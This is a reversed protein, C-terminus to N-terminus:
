DTRIDRAWDRNERYWSVLAAVGQELPVEAKWGLLARAKEVHAWTRPIDAPHGPLREIIAERGTAQEILGGIVFLIALLASAAGATLLTGLFFERRTVSMAQSFPFTFTLAGIGLAMFYWLPASAAGGAKVADIGAGALIAYIAISLMVAGGLIILPIWIFTQRNVLQMRVVNLTRSM